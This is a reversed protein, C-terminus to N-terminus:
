TYSGFVLAVPTDALEALRVREVSPRHSEPDLRPLDFPYAPDAPGLEPTMLSQYGPSGMVDELSLPSDSPTKPRSM